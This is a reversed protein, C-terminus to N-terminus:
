TRVPEWAHAGQWWGDACIWSHLIAFAADTNGVETGVQGASGGSRVEVHWRGEKWRFAQVFYDEGWSPNDVVVFEAHEDLLARLSQPSLPQIVRGSGDAARFAAVWDNERGTSSTGM